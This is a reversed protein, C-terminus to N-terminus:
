AVTGEPQDLLVCRAQQYILRTAGEVIGTLHATDQVPTVSKIANHRATDTVAVLRAQELHESRHGKRQDARQRRIQVAPADADVEFALKFALLNVGIADAPHM